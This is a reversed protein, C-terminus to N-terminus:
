FNLNLGASFIRLNPFGSSGRTEGSPREPDFFPFNTITFLNQANIYIRLDSIFNKQTFSNPFTYSLNVNRLRLHSRDLLFFSNTSQTSPGAEGLSLRPYEADINDPTWRDLWKTELGHNNDFPYFLHSWGYSQYGAAGQLLTTLNFGKFGIDLNLGFIWEPDPNGIVQRDDPTIVGDGDLDELQVDGLGYFNSVLSHDAAQDLQAQTRFIDVVQYGYYANIPSGPQLIV